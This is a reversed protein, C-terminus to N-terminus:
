QSVEGALVVVIGATGNRKRLENRKSFAEVGINGWVLRPISELINKGIM